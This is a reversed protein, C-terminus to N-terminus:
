TRGGSALARASRTADRARGARGRAFRSPLPLRVERTREGGTYNISPLGAADFLPATILGNDSISPGVVLVCGAEDLERFATVVDHETGWPLGRTHKPVLEVDRDFRDTMLVEDLGLRLAAEPQRAM